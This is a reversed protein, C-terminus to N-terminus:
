SRKYGSRPMRPPQQTVPVPPYVPAVHVAWARAQYKVARAQRRQQTLERSKSM